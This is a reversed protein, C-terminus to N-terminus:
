AANRVQQRAEQRALKRKKLYALGTDAVGAPMFAITLMLVIGYGINRFQGLERSLEPLLILIITGIIPGLVGRRGGLIVFSLAAILFSFGFENPELNYSHFATLAGFYGAIGGSLSFALIQYYTVNIGLSSAVAEDQRMAEFVRGLRSRNLSVMLYILVIVSILLVPTGISKPVSLGLAGETLGEAFLNVSVVIQVFAITAIAQYVGRLRALPLALLFGTGIGFVTGIFISIPVPFGFKAMLIGATYAGIASFAANAVSFVGARLVIWQSFAYGIGLLMFDLVPENAIYFQIM